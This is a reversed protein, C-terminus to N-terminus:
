LVGRCVKMLTAFVSDRQMNPIAYLRWSDEVVALVDRVFNLAPGGEPVGVPDYNVEALRNCVWTARDAAHIFDNYARPWVPHGFVSAGVATICEVGDDDEGQADTSAQLSM